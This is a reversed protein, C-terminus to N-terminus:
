RWRTISTWSRGDDDSYLSGASLLRDGVVTLPYMHGNDVGEALEGSYALTWEGEELSGLRWMTVQLTPTGYEVHRLIIGGEPTALIEETTVTPTPLSKVITRWSAGRDDGVHFVLADSRLVHSWYLLDDEQTGLVMDGVLPEPGAGAANPSALVRTRRVGNQDWWAVLAGESADLLQRGWPEVGVGPSVASLTNGPSGTWQGRWEYVTEDAVDVACWTAQVEGSLCQFWQRPEDPPRAEVVHTLRKSVTGDERVLWEGGNAGDVLMLVGPAPSHVYYIGGPFPPRRYTTTAYGDTTIAIASFEPRLGAVNKPCWTCTATWVSIRFDPDDASAGAFWLGANDARVVEEPTMSTDSQHTPSADPTPEPTPTPTVSPTIVPDPSADKDSRTVAVAGGVVILAAITLGAVSAVATRRDRRRAVEELSEFPPATAKHAITRLPDLDPM